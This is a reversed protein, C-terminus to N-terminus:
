RKINLKKPSADIKEIAAEVLKKTDEDECLKDMSKDYYEQSIELFWQKHFDSVPHIREAKEIFIDAVREAPIGPHRKYYSSISRRVRVNDANQHDKWWHKIVDNAIYEISEREELQGCLFCLHRTLEDIRKRLETDDCNCNHSRGSASTGYNSDGCPM